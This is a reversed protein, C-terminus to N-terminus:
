CGWAEFLEDFSLFRRSLWGKGEQLNEKKVPPSFVLRPTSMYLFTRKKPAKWNWDPHTKLAEVESRHKNFWVKGRVGITTDIFNKWDGVVEVHEIRAIYSIGVHVGPHKNAIKKGFHPAFNDPTM